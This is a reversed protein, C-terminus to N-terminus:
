KRESNYYTSDKITSGIMFGKITEALVNLTNQGESTFIPNANEGQKNTTIFSQFFTDMIMKNDNSTINREGEETEAMFKSVEQGLKENSLPANNRDNYDVLTEM